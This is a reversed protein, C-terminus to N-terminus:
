TTTGGSYRSHIQGFSTAAATSRSLRTGAGASTPAAQRAAAAEDIRLEAYSRPMLAPFLTEASRAVLAERARDPMGRKAM